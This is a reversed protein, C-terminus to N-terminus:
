LAGAGFLRVGAALRKNFFSIAARLAMSPLNPWVLMAQPDSLILAPCFLVLSDHIAAMNKMM